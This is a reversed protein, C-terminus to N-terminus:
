NLLISFTSAPLGAENILNARTFPQWAYRVAKISHGKPPSLLVQNNIIITKVPLLREGKETLLEFGTLPLKDGTSLETSETFSIVIGNQKLKATSVAPGVARISKNYNNKLALLALREGVEKKRSPHVDLSDGLDSSVAMGTNPIQLQLKRQADRFASWSPRDISSLQVYYFPFNYGWHQRWSNVLVPFAHEYQEVNQTNSEGQYWIVGKIPFGTLKAIGAEYNYSPEYPHRQRIKTANKLNVDARERVWEQIFDSKRWDTLMDALQEDHEMTSRDIWSELISGGVAVEILGVPVAGEAVIKKGFYYAIASFGSASLANTTQWQGKFYNLQNVQQLTLSDWSSNSTEAIPEFKLLRLLPNNKLRDLETKGTASAKLPFAMNSQGACLWVDGILVDNIEIQTGNSQVKLQYPGGHPMAPFMIKWQGAANSITSLRKNNFIVEVKQGAKATGFIPISKNRQLVMHDAFLAPITLGGDDQTVTHALVLAHLFVIAFVSMLRKSM